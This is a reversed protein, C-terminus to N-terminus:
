TLCLTQTQLERRIFNLSEPFVMQSFGTTIAQEESGWKIKLKGWLKSCLVQYSHLLHKYLVWDRSQLLNRNLSLGKSSPWRKVIKEAMTVTNWLCELSVHCLAKNQIHDKNWTDLDIQDLSTARCGAMPYAAYLPLHPGFFTILFVSSQLGPAYLITLPTLNKMLLLRLSVRWFSLWITPTNTLTIWLFLDLPLSLYLSLSLCLSISWLITSNCLRKDTEGSVM